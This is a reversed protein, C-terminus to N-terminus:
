GDPRVDPVQRDMPLADSATVNFAHLVFGDAKLRSAGGTKRDVETRGTRDVGTGSDAETRASEKLSGGPSDNWTGRRPSTVDGSQQGVSSMAASQRDRARAGQSAGGADQQTNHNKRTLYTQSHTDSRSSPDGSVPPAGREMASISPHQHQAQPVAPPLAAPRVRGSPQAAHPLSPNLARRVDQQPPASYPHHDYSLSHRSWEGLDAEVARLAPAAELQTEHGDGESWLQESRKPFAPSAENVQGASSGASSLLVDVEEGHGPSLKWSVFDEEAGADGGPDEKTLLMRQDPGVRAPLRSLSARGLGGQGAIAAAAPLGHAVSSAMGENEVGPYSTLGTVYGAHLRTKQPGTPGESQGACLKHTLLPSPQLSLHALTVLCLWVSVM